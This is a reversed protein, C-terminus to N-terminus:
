NSCWFIRSQMCICVFHNVKHCGFNVGLPTFCQMWDIVVDKRAVVKVNLCKPDVCSWEVRLSSCRYHDIVIKWKEVTYCYGKWHTCQLIPFAGTCWHECNTYKGWACLPIAQHCSCTHGMKFLTISGVELLFSTAYLCLEQRDMDFIIHGSYTQPWIMKMIDGWSYNLIRWTSGIKGILVLVMQLWMNNLQEQKGDMCLM